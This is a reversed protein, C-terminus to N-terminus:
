RLLLSTIWFYQGLLTEDQRMKGDHPLNKPWRPLTAKLHSFSSHLPVIWAWFLLSSEEKSSSSSTELLPFIFELHRQFYNSILGRHLIATPNFWLFELNRDLKSDTRLYTTWCKELKIRQPFNIHKFFCERTLKYKPFVALWTGKESM